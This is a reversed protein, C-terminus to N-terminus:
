GWPDFYGGHPNKSPKYDMGEFQKEVVFGSGGVEPTVVFEWSKPLYAATYKVTVSEILSEPSKKKLRTFLATAYNQAPEEVLFYNHDTSIILEPVGSGIRFM